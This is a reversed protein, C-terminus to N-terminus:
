PGDRLLAADGRCIGGERADGAVAGVPRDGVSGVSPFFDRRGRPGHRRPEDWDADGARTAIARPEPDDPIGPTGWTPGLDDTPREADADRQLVRTLADQTISRGLRVLVEELDTFTTGLPIRGDPGLLKDALNKAVGDLYTAHAALEPRPTPKRAMRIGQWPNPRIVSLLQRV